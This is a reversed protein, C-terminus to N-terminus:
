SRAYLLSVPNSEGTVGTATDTVTCILVAEALTSSAVGSVTPTVSATNSVGGNFSFTGNVSSSYTWAYTFPGLGDTITATESAFMHTATAGGDSQASPAATVTPTATYILKIGGSTGVYGALVTKNGSATGLTMVGVTKNGSATGVTVTM